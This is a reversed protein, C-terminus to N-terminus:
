EAETAEAEEAPAEQAAEASEETAEEAAEETAEEEVAEEAEEAVEESEEEAAAEDEEVPPELGAKRGYPYSVMMNRVFNGYPTSFNYWIHTDFALNENVNGLKALLEDYREAFPRDGTGALFDAYYDRAIAVMEEMEAMKDETIDDGTASDIFEPRYGNFAGVWSETNQIKQGEFEDPTGSLRYKIYKNGTHNNNMKYGNGGDILVVTKEEDLKYSGELPEEAGEPIYTSKGDEVGWQLLNALAPRVNFAEIIEM